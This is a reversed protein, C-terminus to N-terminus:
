IMFSGVKKREAASMAALENRRRVFVAFEVPSMTEGRLVLITGGKLAPPYKDFEGSIDYMERFWNRIHDSIDEVIWESHVKVIRAKEDLCAQVFADDFAKKKARNAERVEQTRDRESFDWKRTDTIGLHQMRHLRRLRVLKRIRYQRFFRQIKSCAATQLILQEAHEIVIYLKLKLLNIIKNLIGSAEIMRQLSSSRQALVIDESKTCVEVSPVPTPERIAPRVKNPSVYYVVHDFNKKM